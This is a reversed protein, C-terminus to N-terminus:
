EKDDKDDDPKSFLLYYMTGFMFGIALGTAVKGMASGLAMLPQIRQVKLLSQDQISLYTPNLYILCNQIRTAMKIHTTLMTVENKIKTLIVSQIINFLLINQKTLFTEFMFFCHAEYVINIM